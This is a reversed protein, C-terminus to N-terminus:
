WGRGLDCRENSLSQWIWSEPFDKRVSFEAGGAADHASAGVTALHMDTDEDTRIDIFGAELTAFEWDATSLFITQFFYIPRDVQNVALRAKM